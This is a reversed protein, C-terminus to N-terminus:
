TISRKTATGLGERGGMLWMPSRLLASRRVAQSAPPSHGVAPHPKHQSPRDIGGEMVPQGAQGPRFDILQLSRAFGAATSSTRKSFICLVGYYAKDRLSPM